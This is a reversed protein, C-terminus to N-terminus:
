ELKRTVVSTPPSIGEVQFKRKFHGVGKFFRRSRGIDAQLTRMTLALSFKEIIVFLFDVM